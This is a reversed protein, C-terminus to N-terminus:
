AMIAPLLESVPVEKSIISNQVMAAVVNKYPNVSQGTYSDVYFLGRAGCKRCGYTCCQIKKGLRYAYYVEGCTPCTAVYRGPTTKIENGACREPKCGVQRCIMRWHFDHGHHPGSIVHAIEHLITEKIEEENNSEIFYYSIYITAAYFGPAISRWSCKGLAKKQRSLELRCNEPVHYKLMLSKALELADTVRM